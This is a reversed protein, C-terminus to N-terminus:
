DQLVVNWPPTDEVWQDKVEACIVSPDVLSFVLFLSMYTVLQMLAYRNCTGHAAVSAVLAASGALIRV